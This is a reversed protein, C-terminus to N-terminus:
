EENNDVDAFESLKGAAKVRYKKEQTAKTAQYSLNV